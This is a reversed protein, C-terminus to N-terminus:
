RRGDLVPMSVATSLCVATVAYKYLSCNSNNTKAWCSGALLMETFELHSLNSNLTDTTVGQKFITDNINNVDTHHHTIYTLLPYSNHALSSSRYSLFFISSLSLPPLPHSNRILNGDIDGDCSGICTCYENFWVNRHNNIFLYPYIGFIIKDYHLYPTLGVSGEVTM